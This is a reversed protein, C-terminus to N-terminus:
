LRVSSKPHSETKCRKRVIVRGLHMVLEVLTYLSESSCTNVAPSGSSLYAESEGELEIQEGETRSLIDM